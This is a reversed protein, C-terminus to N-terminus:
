RIDIFYPLLAQIGTLDKLEMLRNYYEVSEGLEKRLLSMRVDESLQTLLRTYPDELQPLERIKYKDIGALQAAGTIADNLGGMEDVLGIKMARTGSWVRGQGINDVADFSIKRGDAVKSVFDSYVKEISMQMIEKEYSNMPRFISPFDSNKNTNVTETSLGLKKEFLTRANPLLGFVGISGSITAPSAYIKTAPASIYYGGSAAYNGMSIVVPKVKEALMLERWIIDSAIANGGPSNVRLVIAKVATDLREKRIVEAYHRGGINTENGKGAVINGEAYIVSIRNKSTFVKAPDPVKVYRTMKVLKLEKEKEIGALAKLTDILEDRYMLGDVLNNEYALTALNGTLNDADQRLKEVPIERAESVTEIVHEWISGTYDKIQERNEESLKDLIFPEVAGKFKGHRTVQVDIGLKELANKFFMVESSLGKFEVMSGPSVYIKDAATSLYYCQQTLIYDAYSIVFKGSDRFEMLAKRIEGTTAWGSPLLGNEILIGKIKRDASAKQINRLIENLGVSPTFTMDMLDLGQFPNKTGRDPIIVGANLVLISNESVSVPKDGSAVLASLAAIMIIFFLISTIIIGTITAFTYKLFNKM